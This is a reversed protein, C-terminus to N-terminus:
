TRRDNTMYLFQSGARRTRSVLGAAVLSRLALRTRAKGMPRVRVTYAFRREDAVIDDLTLPRGVDRLGTAIVQEDSTLGDHYNLTNSM